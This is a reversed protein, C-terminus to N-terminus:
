GSIEIDILEPLPNSHPNKPVIVTLVGNGMSAKAEEGKANEPLYFRKLFSGDFREACHYKEGEQKEEKRWQEGSIELVRDDTIALKM